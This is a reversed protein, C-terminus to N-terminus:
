DSTKELLEDDINEIRKEELYEREINVADINYKRGKRCINWAAYLGMEISHDMNNYRFTGNRGIIQLNYFQKLFKKINDIDSRYNLHYIPYEKEARHVFGAIIDERKILNFESLYSDSVIKIAEKDTLNWIRDGVNCPVEFVLTTAGKPSLINSWNDMEMVRMFPIEKPHIYIWTDPTIHKRRVFLAVQLEDRYKLRSNNILINRNAKPQLGSILDSLAISSIYDDGTVEMEKTKKRVVVSELHRNKHNIKIVESEMLVQGGLRNIKDALKESIRGIGEKPYSFEDVLSVVDKKKFLTDKIITIINLGRTRQGVWDISIRNCKIGWLKESYRQFFTEYLTKGFQNIYGDEM